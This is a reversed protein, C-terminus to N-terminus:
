KAYLYIETWEDIYKDRKSLMKDFAVVVLLSSSSSVCVVLAWKDYSYIEITHSSVILHSCYLLVLIAWLQLNVWLPPLSPVHKSILRQRCVVVWVNELWQCFKWRTLFQNRRWFILKMKQFFERDRIHYPKGNLHHMRVVGLVTDWDFISESERSLPVYYLYINWM